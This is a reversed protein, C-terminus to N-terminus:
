AQCPLPLSIQNCHFRSLSQPVPLRPVCAQQLVLSPSSRQAQPKVHGCTPLLSALMSFVVRRGTAHRPDPRLIRSARMAAAFAWRVPLM